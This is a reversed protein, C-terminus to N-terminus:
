IKKGRIQLLPCGLLDLILPNYLFDTAKNRFLPLSNLFKPSIKGPCRGQYAQEKEIKLQWPIKLTRLTCVPGGFKDDKDSFVLHEIRGVELILPKRVQPSCRGGPQSLGSILSLKFAERFDIWM